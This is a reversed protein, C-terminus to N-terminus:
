LLGGKVLKKEKVKSDFIGFCCLSTGKQTMPTWCGFPSWTLHKEGCLINYIMGKIQIQYKHKDVNDSLKLNYGLSNM